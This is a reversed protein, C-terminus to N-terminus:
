KLPALGHPFVFEAGSRGCRGCPQIAIADKNFTHPNFKSSPSVSPLLGKKLKSNM